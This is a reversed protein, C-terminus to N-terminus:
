ATPIMPKVIFLVIIAFVMILLIYLLNNFNIETSGTRIIAFALYVFFGLALAVFGMVLTFPTLDQLLIVLYCLTLGLIPGLFEIIQFLRDWDIKEGEEM